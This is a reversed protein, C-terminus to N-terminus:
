RCQAHRVLAMRIIELRQAEETVPRQFQEVSCAGAPFPCQGDFIGGGGSMEHSGASHPIIGLAGDNVLVVARM